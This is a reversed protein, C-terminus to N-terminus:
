AVGGRGLGGDAPDIIQEKVDRVVLDGTRGQVDRALTGSRRSNRGDISQWLSGFRDCQQYLRDIKYM